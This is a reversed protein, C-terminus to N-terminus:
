DKKKKDKGGLVAVAVAGIILAVVLFNMWIDGGSDSMLWSTITQGFGTVYLVVGITFLGALIGFTVKMWKDAKSLDGAVFGYLIFFVLIVAVGVTMWPMIGIIINRPAPVGILLLGVVAAVVADIQLKGEGLFKSKQLIAFLVFFILFFPLVINTFIPMDFIM